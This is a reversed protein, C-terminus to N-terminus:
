EGSLIFYVDSGDNNHFNNDWDAESLAVKLSIESQKREHIVQIYLPYEGKANPKNRRQIIKVSSM